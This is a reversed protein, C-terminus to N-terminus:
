SFSLFSRDRLEMTLTIIANINDVTRVDDITTLITAVMMLSWIAKETASPTNYAILHSTIYIVIVTFFLLLGHIAPKNTTHPDASTNETSECYM